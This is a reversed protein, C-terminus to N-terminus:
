PRQVPRLPRHSKSDDWTLEFTRNLPPSGQPPNKGKCRVQLRRTCADASLVECRVEQREAAHRAAVRYTCAKKEEEAHRVTERCRREDEAKLAALEAETAGLPAASTTCGIGGRQCTSFAEMEVGVESLGSTHLLVFAGAPMSPSGSIGIGEGDTLPRPRLYLWVRQTSFGSGNAELSEGRCLELPTTSRKPNKAADTTCGDAGLTSTATMVPEAASVSLPTTLLLCLTALLLTRM